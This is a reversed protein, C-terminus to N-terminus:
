FKLLIFRPFYISENNILKGFDFNNVNYTILVGEAMLEPHANASYVFEQHDELNPEYFLVQDSWPGQPLNALRYGLKAKGFGFTQVQMYKEIEKQYHVSFETQGKFLVAGEPAEGRNSVWQDAAWWAMSLFNGSLLQEIEFRILYVEHTGPEKVGYAYLYRSDRLIASSGTLIDSPEPGKFYEIDWSLPDEYPNDIIVMYWGVARFGLGESTSEEEFLFIILNDKVLMGHGCWLWTDGPLNFFDNPKKRSGKYYFKITAKEIDLGNQIAISNRIMTSNSRNGTGDVDIFTDSFLWLIRNNGLDVTAAGDAGKWYKDSTFLSNDIEFVEFGEHNLKGQSFGELGSIFLIAILTLFKKMSKYQSAALNM